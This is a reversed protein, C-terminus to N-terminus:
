IPPFRLLYVPLLYSLGPCPLLVESFGVGFLKATRYFSDAIEASHAPGWVFGVGQFLCLGLAASWARGLHCLAAIPCTLLGQLRTNPGQRIAPAVPMSPLLLAPFAGGRLFPINIVDSFLLLSLAAPQVAPSSSFLDLGTWAIAPLPLPSSDPAHCVLQTAARNFWSKGEGSSCCSM